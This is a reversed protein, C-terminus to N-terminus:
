AIFKIIDAKLEHCSEAHVNLTIENKVGLNMIGLISKADVIVSGRALDMDYPYDEVIKLFEQIDEPSEFMIKMKSMITVKRALLKFHEMLDKRTTTYM